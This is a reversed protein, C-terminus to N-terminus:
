LRQGAGPLPEMIVNTVHLRASVPAYGQLAESLVYGSNEAVDWIFLYGGRERQSDATEDSEPAYLLKTGRCLLQGSSSRDTDFRNHAQVELHAGYGANTLLISAPGSLFVPPTPMVVRLFNERRAAKRANACGRSLLGNAVVCPLSLYTLVAGLARSGRSPKQM